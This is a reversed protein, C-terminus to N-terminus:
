SISNAVMNESKTRRLRGGLAGNTVIRKCTSTVISPSPSPSPSSSPPSRAEPSKHKKIPKQLQLQHHNRLGSSSGRLGERVRKSQSEDCNNKHSSSSNSSNPSKEERQHGGESEFVLQLNWLVWRQHITTPLAQNFHPNEFRLDLILLLSNHKKKKVLLLFRIVRSSRVQKRNPQTPKPQYVKEQFGSGVWCSRMRNPQVKNVRLSSRIRSTCLELEQLKQLSQMGNKLSTHHAKQSNKKDWTRGREM